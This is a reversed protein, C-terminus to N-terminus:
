CIISRINSRASRTPQHAKEEILAVIEEVPKRMQREVDVLMEKPDVKV